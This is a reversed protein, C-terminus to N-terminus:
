LSAGRGGIGGSDVLIIKLIKTMPMKIFGKIPLFNLIVRNIKTIAMTYCLIIFITLVNAPSQSDFIM